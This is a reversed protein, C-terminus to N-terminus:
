YITYVKKLKKKEFGRNTFKRIIKYKENMSEFNGKTSTDMRGTEDCVNCKQDNDMKTHVSAKGELNGIQKVGKRMQKITKSVSHLKDRYYKIKQKLEDQSVLTREFKNMKQILSKNNCKLSEIEETLRHIEELHNRPNRWKEILRRKEEVRREEEETERRKKEM